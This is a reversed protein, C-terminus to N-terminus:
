GQDGPRQDLILILTIYIIIGCATANYLILLPMRTTYFAEPGWPGFMIEFLAVPLLLKLKLKRHSKALLQHRM